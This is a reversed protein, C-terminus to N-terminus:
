RTLTVVSDMPGGRTEIRWGNIAVPEWGPSPEIAVACARNGLVRAYIRSIQEDPFFRIDWALPLNPMGSRVYAGRQFEPPVLSWALSTADVCADQDGGFPPVVAQLGADNHATSGGGLLHANAAYWFFEEPRFSRQRGGAREREAAGMPEDGIMPVHLGELLPAHETGEGSGDRMELLDKAKRSWGRDRPSHVACYDLVPLRARWVDNDRYVEPVYDGYAMPCGRSWNRDWIATPTCGNQWPENAIELFVHDHRGITDHVRRLHARQDGQNPMINQASAFVTFEYRMTRERLYASFRPLEEFYNGNIGPGFVQDPLGFPQNRWHVMGLVRVVNVGKSLYYDVVADINEGLLWRYFLLFASHGQWGFISGDDEYVLFDRIAKVRGMRRPRGGGSGSASGLRYPAILPVHDILRVVGGRRVRM